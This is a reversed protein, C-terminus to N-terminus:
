KNVVIRKTGLRNETQINIFYLGDTYNVTNLEFQSENRAIREVMVLEGIANYM